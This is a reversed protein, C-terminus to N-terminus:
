LESNRSFIFITCLSFFNTNFEQVSHYLFAISFLWYLLRGNGRYNIYFKVFFVITWCYTIHILTHIHTFIYTLANWWKMLIWISEHMRKRWFDVYVFEKFHHHKNSLFRIPSYHLRTQRLLRAIWCSGRGRALRPNVKDCRASNGRPFIRSSEQLSIFLNAVQIGSPFSIEKCSSLGSTFWDRKNCGIQEEM